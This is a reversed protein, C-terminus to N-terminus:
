TRLDDTLSRLLGLFPVHEASSNRCVGLEGGFGFPKLEDREVRTTRKLGYCLYIHMM